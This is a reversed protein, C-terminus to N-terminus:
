TALREQGSFTYPKDPNRLNPMPEASDKGVKYIVLCQHKVTSSSREYSTPSISKKTCLWSYTLNQILTWCTNYHLIIILMMAGSAWAPGEQEFILIFIPWQGIFSNLIPSITQMKRRKSTIHDMSPGTQDLNLEKYERERWQVSGVVGEREWNLDSTKTSTRASATLLEGWLLTTGGWGLLSPPVTLNLSSQRFWFSSLNGM